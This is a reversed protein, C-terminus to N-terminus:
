GDFQCTCSTLFHPSWWVTWLSRLCTTAQLMKKFFMFLCASTLAALSVMSLGLDQFLFKLWLLSSIMCWILCCIPRQLELGHNLVIRMYCAFSGTGLSRLFLVCLSRLQSCGFFHCRCDLSDLMWAYELPIISNRRLMPRFAFNSERSCVVVTLGLEVVFRLVNLSQLIGNYLVLYM